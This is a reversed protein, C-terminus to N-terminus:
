CDDEGDEDEMESGSSDGDIDNNKNYVNDCSDGDGDCRCLDTCPLGHSVCICAASKCMLKKCNCCILQLIEEPAPPLLMWQISLSSDNDEMRWGFGDPSPMGTMPSLCKKVMSTVYSVRKCHCLLADRTPPLKEPPPVVKGSTFKEYRAKNTDVSKSGYLRCVFEELTQFLQSNFTTTQGLKRFVKMFKKVNVLLKFSRVKGIGFFASTYDNGTFAHFAPLALCCKKGLSQAIQNVNLIRTRDKVGIFIFFSVNIKFSFYLSYIVIDTDITFICVSEANHNTVAHQAALFVKTDAEEQDNCLSTEEQCVM